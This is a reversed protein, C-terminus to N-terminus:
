SDAANECFELRIIVEPIQFDEPIYIHDQSQLSGRRTKISPMLKLTSHMSISLASLTIEPNKLLM